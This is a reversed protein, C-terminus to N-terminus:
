HPVLSYMGLKDKMLRAAVLYGVALAYRAMPHVNVLRRWVYFAYHRNDALLFPHVVTYHMIGWWMAMLPFLSAVVRKPSGFCGRLARLVARPSLYLPALFAAAFALFYFFQPVHIM